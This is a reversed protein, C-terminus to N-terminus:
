VNASNNHGSLFMLQLTQVSLNSWIFIKVGMHGKPPRLEQNLLRFNQRWLFHYKRSKRVIKVKTVVKIQSSFILPFRFVFSLEYFCTEAIIKQHNRLPSYHTLAVYRKTLLAALGLPVWMDSIFSIGTLVSSSKRKPQKRSSCWGCLTWVYKPLRTRGLKFYLFKMKKLLIM